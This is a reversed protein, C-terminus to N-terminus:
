WTSWSCGHRRTRRTTRCRTWCSGRSRGCASAWSALGTFRVGLRELNLLAAYEKSKMAERCAAAVIRDRKTMGKDLPPLDPAHPSFRWHPLIEDM